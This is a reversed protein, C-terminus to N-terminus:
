IHILSLSLYPHPKWSRSVASLPCFPCTLICYDMSDITIKKLHEGDYSKKVSAVMVGEEVEDDSGLVYQSHIVAM